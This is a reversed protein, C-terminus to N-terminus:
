YGMLVLQSIKGYGAYGGGGVYQQAQIAIFRYTTFATPTTVYSTNTFGVASSAVFRNTSQTISADKVIEVFSNATTLSTAAASPSVIAVGTNTNAAGSGRQDIITWTGAGTPTADNTAALVWASIWPNNAGDAVRYL